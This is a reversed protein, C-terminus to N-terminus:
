YLAYKHDSILLTSSMNTSNVSIGYAQCEEKRFKHQGGCHRCKSTNSTMEGGIRAQSSYYKKGNKRSYHVSGETTTGIKQLQDQAIGSNICM